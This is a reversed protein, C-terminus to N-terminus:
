KITYAYPLAVVDDGNPALFNQFLINNSDDVYLTGSVHTGPTGKPTITVPITATQGPNIVTPAFRAKPHTSTLWLDGTPAKITPDFANSTTTMSTTVSEPQAGAAGFAGAVTPAIDWLGPTIPDAVFTASVSSGVTSGIDPDGAPSASDFQIPTTGTTSATEAFATTHSPVLYLPIPESFNLPVTTTAGTLAALKLTKMTPLRADTFFAEPAPGHNTITVDYTVPQGAALQVSPSDPLGGSSASIANENASVTFPESLATGSVAPIFAIILTWAGQAPALVHLQAGIEPTETTGNFLDNSAFAIAEGTPSVLFASFPNDPNNALKVAVNLEPRAAALDFQYYFTQGTIFSRGNGGTLTGTFSTPGNPILSRLTVPITSQRSFAPGSDSSLLIAGSADGPRPPTVVHLTVPSSQGPDLTLTAPSVRGFRVYTAVSAGFVVPGTTGGQSSVRSWVYATWTGPDPNTVQVNGYNGDGQPVSYATLHGAPDVLTLRVRAHLDTPSANQFAISASLRNQDPPVTFTIPEYNAATGTWDTTQPSTTDSLTVKATKITRYAGLARASVSITQRSAGNNTITDTLTEPTGPAGITNLQTASALLTDGAPAPVSAPAKYSEAAQVAKYADILGAGQQDAPSGIDDTTSVIIQKVVQPSPVAGGHTKEYAQIVLAAVGATLPASESTGGFPIVPTPKGGYSVRDFYKATDTSCLSWNLEGPAVVDVTRGSQEFGGSSFSSIDNNLYGTVGPFQAGGYGDQLDVRYTTTARASLVNPDTSPTGITSTVGADGSSVTVTTGAAM